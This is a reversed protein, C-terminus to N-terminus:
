ILSNKEVLHNKKKQIFRNSLTLFVFDKVLFLIEPLRYKVFIHFFTLFLNFNM